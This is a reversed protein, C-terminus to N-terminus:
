GPFEDKLPHKDSPIDDIFPTDALLGHTNVLLYIDHSFRV